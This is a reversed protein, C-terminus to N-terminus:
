RTREGQATHGQNEPVTAIEGPKAVVGLVGSGSLSGSLQFFLNKLGREEWDPVRLARAMEFDQVTLGRGEFTRCGGADAMVAVEDMFEM